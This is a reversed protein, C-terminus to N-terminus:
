CGTSFDGTDCGVGVCAVENLGCDTSVIHYCCYGSPCSGSGCHHEDLTYTVCCGDAIAQLVAPSVDAPLAKLLLSSPLNPLPTSAARAVPSTLLGTLGAGATTLVGASLIRRLMDRRTPSEDSANAPKIPNEV